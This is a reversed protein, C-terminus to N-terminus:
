IRFLNITLISIDTTLHYYEAYSIDLRQLDPNKVNPMRDRTKFVGPRINPLPTIMQIASPTSSYGVWSKRGGLVALCDAFYRRKRKQFWFLIPSLLILLLSSAIDFLRKRRRNTANSINDIDPAYIDEPSSTYNSGILVNDHRPLIRFNKINRSQFITIDLMEKVGVDRGSFIIEDTELRQELLSKDDPDIRKVRRGAADTEGSYCAEDTEIGLSDFLNLLRKEEGKSGVFTYRHRRSPKINYGDVKIINLIGRIGMTGIISWVSGLLVIARSFRLEESMLSYFVLLCVAGISMGQIIRGTRLPKDYGGALWSTLLLILIYIPIVVWTYVPSYYNVNEAWYTAWLHKIAVFGAFSVLFDALPLALHAAIRKVFDISARLWIALQILVTYTKAGSSSFYKRAFIAMANYFTYVYNMSSKRSSEGKYHLIRTTPLYYNKFGAMKIRWSFDIDEGYMFYSEDLLGTKELAARSVMLFAGPLVDVENVQDDDLHGMYYAAVKRNRPFLKILGSIKYFSTAPSPFGRKSEKLFLGEGNIMKVSLGGCDPHELFHSICVSFTDRQVLTDPNLLLIYEGSCQRLAQNNAKAFGPNDSNAILHVGPHKQRLMQVSGDTSNNDVVWVETEMSCGHTNKLELAADYVSHLCQDIFHKVNYNVIVISLTM